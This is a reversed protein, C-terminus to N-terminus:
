KWGEVIKILTGAQLPQQLGMGNILAIRQLKEAERFGRKELEERLTHKRNVTVIKIRLPQINLIRSNKLENFHDFTNRFVARYKKEFLPAVTMGHFVFVKGDKQIFYSLLRMSGERTAMNSVVEEAAFRGVSIKRRSAVTVKSNTIFADAARAPNNEGALTMQIVAKKDPSQLVVQTPLNHVEWKEPVPFSFKLEPHYFKGNQVFGQRPDQGFVLGDIKRLYRNREIKFSSGGVKKQWERALARIKKVREAPNPHTSFWDPLGFQPSEASMKQLTVFFNAMHTADYGVKTSYEVGLADAQREDDRSFKLFLLNLGFEALGSIKRFTESFSAGLGLGLQALQAKTYQQASHRATVHGIEHGMVGALEAESNLYALIGRTIYVYGGPIAFANIVPSDLLRFTFKLNPRHSVRVLKQGLDNLYSELQADPYLGYVQVVEADSQQGLRIEDAESLLMLEKKGTVPNTACSIWIVSALLFVVYRTFQTVLFARM